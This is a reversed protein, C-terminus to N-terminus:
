RAADERLRSKFSLPVPSPLLSPPTWLSHSTTVGSLMPIKLREKVKIWRLFYRSSIKMMEESIVVIRHVPRAISGTWLNKTSVERDRRRVHTRLSSSPLLPSPPPNVRTFHVALCEEAQTVRRIEFRPGRRAEPPIYSSSMLIPNSNSSSGTVYTGLSTNSVM